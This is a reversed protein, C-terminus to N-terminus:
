SCNIESIESPPNFFHTVNDKTVIGRGYDRQNYECWAIGRLYISNDVENRLSNRRTPSMQTGTSSKM